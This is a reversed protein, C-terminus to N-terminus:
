TFYDSFLDLYFPRLPVLFRCLSDPPRRLTGVSELKSRPTPRLNSQSEVLTDTVCRYTCTYVVCSCLCVVEPCVSGEGSVGSVERACM